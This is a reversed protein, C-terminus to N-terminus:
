GLGLVPAQQGVRYQLVAVCVAAATASSWVVRVEDGGPVLIPSSEDAIALNGNSTFDTLNEDLVPGVYVRAESAAVSDSSVTIRDILWYTGMDAPAFVAEAVGAGDAVVRVRDRAQRTIVERTLLATSNTPTPLGTFRRANAIDPIIPRATSM